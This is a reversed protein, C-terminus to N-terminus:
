SIKPNELSFGLNEKYDWAENPLPHTDQLFLLSM